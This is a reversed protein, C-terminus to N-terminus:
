LLLGSHIPRDLRPHHVRRCGAQSSKSGDFNIKIFGDQPPSWAVWVSRPSRSPSNTFPLPHFPLALLHRIRWEASARKARLLTTIPDCPESRFVSNNRTKWISWLLSVTRELSMRSCSSHLGALWRPVIPISSQPPSHTIWHHDAALRWVQSVSPCGLFLHEMDEIDSLCHPCLPDIQLGGKLLIGRTPLSAHCLQWLFIKLKPMVDLTWIWSFEWPTATTLDLGHALWTASKSSFNDTSSLGWCISDPLQNSPIPTALILQLSNTDVLGRLKVYSQNICPSYM